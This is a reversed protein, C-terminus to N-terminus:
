REGGKQVLILQAAHLAALQRETDTLRGGTRRILERLQVLEQQLHHDRRDVDAALAHILERLILMQEPTGAALAEQAVPLVPEPPRREPLPMPVEREPPPAWRLTAQHAEVRVELRLGFALLLLAAAGLLALASRRWRRARREQRLAAERYLSPLDVQVTPAPVVDLLRCVHEVADAERRCTPCDALHRELRATQEATLDDHLWDALHTRVDSCNM